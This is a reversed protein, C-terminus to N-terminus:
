GTILARREATSSALWEAAAEPTKFPMVKVGTGKMLSSWMRVMGRGAEKPVVVAWRCPAILHSLARAARAVVHNFAADPEGKGCAHGLFRFGPEVDLHKLVSELFERADEATPTGDVTYDILRNTPHVQFHIPM